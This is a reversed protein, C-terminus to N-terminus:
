EERLLQQTLADVLWREFREESWGREIVALYYVTPHNLIGLIEAAEAADLGERLVGKDALRQMVLRQDAIFQDQILQWLAGIEPDGQAARRVVETLAGVRRKIRDVHQLFLQLQRRADPEDLTEKFWDREAVPIAEDDGVVSVDWLDSLLTAKTGFVAQVTKLAVGAAGAIDNLSTGAYGRELFLPLAAELITRRTRRAQEQRHPSHYPRRSNISSEM